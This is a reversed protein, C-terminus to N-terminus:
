QGSSTVTVTIQVTKTSQNGRSDSATCKLETAGPPFKHGSQYNCSVPVNGDVLDTATVDFFVQVGSDDKAGETPKFPAFATPTTDRVTVAFTGSVSNKNSDTVTCIVTTTGIPFLSGSSPNCTPALQHL